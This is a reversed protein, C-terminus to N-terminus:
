KTQYKGESLAAGDDSPERRFFWHGLWVSSCPWISSLHLSISLSFPLRRVASSLSALMSTLIAPITPSLLSPIAVSLSSNVVTLPWTPASLCFSSDSMASIVLYSNERNQNTYLM